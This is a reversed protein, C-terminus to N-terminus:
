GTLTTSITMVMIIIIIIEVNNEKDDDNKLLNDRNNDVDVSSDNSRMYTAPIQALDNVVFLVGHLGLTLTYRLTTWM